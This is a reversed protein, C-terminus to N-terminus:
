ATNLLHTIFIRFNRAKVKLSLKFSRRLLVSFLSIAAILYLQLWLCIFVEISRNVPLTGHLAGFFPQYSSITTLNLNIILMAFCLPVTGM